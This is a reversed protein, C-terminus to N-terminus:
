CRCWLAQQNEFIRLNWRHLTIYCGEQFVKSLETLHPLLTSVLYLIIIFNKIEYTAAFWHV